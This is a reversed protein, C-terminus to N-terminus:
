IDKAIMRRQDAQSYGKYVVPMTACYVGTIVFGTMALASIVYEPQGANWAFLAAVIFAVGLAISALFSGIVLRRHKGQRIWFSMLAMLSLLSLLSFYRAADPMFWPEM